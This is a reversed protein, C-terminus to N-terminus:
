YGLSAAVEAVSTSLLQEDYAGELIETSDVATVQNIRSVLEARRNATLQKTAYETMAAKVTDVDNPVNLAAAFFAIEQDSLTLSM